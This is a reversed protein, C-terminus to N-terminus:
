PKRRRRTNVQMSRSQTQLKPESDGNTIHESTPTVAVHEDEAIKVAEAVTKGKKAASKNDM